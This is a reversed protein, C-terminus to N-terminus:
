MTGRKAQRRLAEQRQEWTPFKVSPRWGAARLDEWNEELVIADDYLVAGNLVEFVYAPSVIYLVQCPEPDNNVLQFFTGPRTLTAQDEELRLAYPELDEESKMWVELKGRRVFTVQTVFVMVHIKSRTQPELSGAAVSVGDLLDFPLGSETDKANLFPSVLTGDPVRFPEAIEFIRRM